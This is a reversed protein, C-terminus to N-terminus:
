TYYAKCAEIAQDLNHHIETAISMIFPHPYDDPDSWIIIIKNETHAFMLEMASGTGKGSSRRTDALVIRSNAIDQMDQKFIRRSINLTRMEDGLVKNLQDHFSIRRTPDLYPIGYYELAAGAQRRWGKMQRETLNEMPGALYVNDKM